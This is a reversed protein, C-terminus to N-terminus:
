KRLVQHNTLQTKPLHSLLVMAVLAVIFAPVATIIPWAVLAILYRSFPVTLEVMMAHVTAAAALLFAGFAVGAATHVAISVPSNRFRFHEHGVHAVYVMASMVWAGLRWIFLGRDTVALDDLQAFVFGVVFYAVGALVAIIIWAKRTSKEM